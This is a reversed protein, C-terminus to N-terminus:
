TRPHVDGTEIEIVVERRTKEKVASILSEYEPENEIM